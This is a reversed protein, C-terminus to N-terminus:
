INIKRTRQREAVQARLQKIEEIIEEIDAQIKNIDSSINKVVSNVFEADNSIKGDVSIWYRLARLILSTRDIEEKIKSHM